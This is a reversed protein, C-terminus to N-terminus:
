LRRIVTVTSLGTALDDTVALVFVNIGADYGLKDGTITIVQGRYRRWDGAIVHEDIVLPGKLFALQRAAEADADAKFAISTMRESTVAGAAWRTIAPADEVLSWLGEDQLWQAFVPDVTEAM